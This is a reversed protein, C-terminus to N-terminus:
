AQNQKEASPPPSGVVSVRPDHSLWFGQRRELGLWGVIFVM